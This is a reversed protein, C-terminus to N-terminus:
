EAVVTYWTGDAKVESVVKYGEPIIVGADEANEPNFEWYTGGMVTITGNSSQHINLTLRPNDSKFTGGKIIISSNAGSVYILEIDMYNGEVREMVYTGDEIVIQGGNRAWVAIASATSTDDVNIRITGNGKLTATASDNVKVVALTAKIDDDAVVYDAVSLDITHDGEVFEKYAKIAYTADKDYQDDFSDEEYTAQAALVRVDFTGLAMGQYENGAEERMKLAFCAYCESQGDRVGAVEQPRIVDEANAPINLGIGQELVERLTGIKQNEKIWNERGTKVFPGYSMYVDIVDALATLESTAVLNVKIKAALSGVNVIRLNIAQVYGPEWNTYNIIPETSNTINTWEWERENAYSAQPEIQWLEIDLTGAQIKNGAVTVSDTFWAFTTGVFMSLCLLLALVSIGLARKTNKM